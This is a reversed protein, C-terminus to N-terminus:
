RLMVWLSAPAAGADDGFDFVADVALMGLLAGIGLVSWPAM